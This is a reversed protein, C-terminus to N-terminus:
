GGGKGALARRPAYFNALGEALVAREQPSLTAAYAAVAAEVNARAQIELNRANGLRRSVEGADFSSSQMAALAAQREARAQQTLPKNKKNADNLAKRFARRSEPSLVDGASSLPPRAQAAPTAAETPPSPAVIAPPPPPTVVPAAIREHHHAPKPPEVVPAAPLLTSPAVPPAAVVRVPAPAVVPAPPPTTLRAYTMGALGGILFVNVVASVALGIIWPRSTM